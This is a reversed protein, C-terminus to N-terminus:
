ENSANATAREVEEAAKLLAAALRRVEAVGLELETNSHVDEDSVNALGANASTIEVDPHVGWAELNIFGAHVQSVEIWGQRYPVGVAKFRIVEM